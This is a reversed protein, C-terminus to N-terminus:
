PYSVDYPMVVVELEGVLYGVVTAMLLNTSGGDWTNCDLKVAGKKQM